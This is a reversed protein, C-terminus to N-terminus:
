LFFGSVWMNKKQGLTPFANALWPQTVLPPNENKKFSPYFFKQHPALPVV